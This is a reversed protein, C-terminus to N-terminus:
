NEQLSKWDKWEITKRKKKANIVLSTKRMERAIRQLEANLHTDRENERKGKADRRKEAIKLYSMLCGNQRKVNIKSPFPRSVHRRYM